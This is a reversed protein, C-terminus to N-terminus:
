KNRNFVIADVYIDMYDPVTTLEIYTLRDLLAEAERRSEANLVMMQAGIGAANGIQMYRDRPLRPFMGINVASELNLYTGFAGAVLFHDIEDPTTGTQKLLVEVGSRIAAKALQIERIDSRAVIIPKGTGSLEAPVLEIAGGQPHEVHRFVKETLRGTEDIQGSELLESVM